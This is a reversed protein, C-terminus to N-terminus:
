LDEDSIDPPITQAIQSITRLESPFLTAPAVSQRTELNYLHNVATQTTHEGLAPDAPEDITVLYEHPQKKLLVTGRRHWRKTLIACPFTQPDIPEM